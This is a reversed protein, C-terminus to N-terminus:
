RNLGMWVSDQIKRQFDPGTNLHDLCRESVIHLQTWSCWFKFPGTMFHGPKELFQGNWYFVLVTNPNESYIYMGLDLKKELWIQKWIEIVIFM